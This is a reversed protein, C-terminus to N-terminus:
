CIKQGDVILYNRNKEEGSQDWEDYFLNVNQIKAWSRMLLMHERFEERQEKAKKGDWVANLESLLMAMIEEEEGAKVLDRKEEPDNELDYLVPDEYGHYSILKYKGIRIMAAPDEGKIDCIESIVPHDYPLDRGALLNPLLNRGEAGPLPPADAAGTFTPALDLLSALGTFRKGEPLKGKWKFIMPIRLSEERMNSKWFMGHYGLGDGHDSTYVMLTNEPDLCQEACDMVSGLLRDEFETMGYYAARVRLIEESTERGLGRNELFTREFPHMDEFDQESLTEPKPLIEHYYDYLEEPAVYPSHPGYLGVVLFLPRDDSREELYRVAAQAVDRDYAMVACEGKGSREIGARGPMSCKSFYGYRQEAFSIGLVATTIDGVLRKEFGHRQDPGVFHMRGCLVTEYGAAGLSHVFTARDSQLTQANNYIGTTHPMKGSLMSCRSPVCLPSNCYANEILVGEEALRDMNPTRVWPDGYSHVIRGSHEDTLIMIINPQKM